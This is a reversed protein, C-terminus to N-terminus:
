KASACYGVVERLVRPCLTNNGLGNAECEEQLWAAQDLVNLPGPVRACLKPNDTSVLLCSRLFTRAGIAQSMGPDAKFDSLTRTVCQEGTANTGAQRGAQKATETQATFEQEHARFYWFMGGVGLVTLLLMLGGIILVAKIGTNM